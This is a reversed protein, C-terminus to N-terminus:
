AYKHISATADVDDEGFCQVFHGDWEGDEFRGVCGEMTDHWAFRDKRQSLDAEVNDEAVLAVEPLLLEVKLHNM